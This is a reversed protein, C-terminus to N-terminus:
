WSFSVNAHHKYGITKYSGNRVEGTEPDTIDAETYSLYIQIDYYGKIDDSFAELVKESVLNQAEEMGVWHEIVVNINIIKGTLNFTVDGVQELSQITEKAKTYAEDTIPYDEIDDLRNGYVTVDKSPMFSALIILGIIMVIFLFILMSIILANRKLFKLFKRMKKKMNKM